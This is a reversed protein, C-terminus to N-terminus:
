SRDSWPLPARAIAGVAHRAVTAAGESALVVLPIAAALTAFSAILALLTAEISLAMVVVGLSLTFVVAVHFFRSDLRDSFDTM